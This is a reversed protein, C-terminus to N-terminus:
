DVIIEIEGRATRYKSSYPVFVFKFTGSEEVRKNSGSWKVEGYVRRGDENYAKVQNELKGLYSALRKPNSSYSVHIEGITLDLTEYGKDEDVVIRITSTVSDYDDNDPIFRYRFRGGDDIETSDRDVWEVEGYLRRGSRNYAEVSDELDGLLDALTDDYDAYIKITKLTIGDVTRSTTGDRDTSDSSGSSGSGRYNGSNLITSEDVISGDNIYLQGGSSEEFYLDSIRSGRATVINAAADVTGSDVRGWVSVKVPADVKLKTVRASSGIVVPRDLSNDLRLTGITGYFNVIEQSGLTVAVYNGQSNTFCILLEGDEGTMVAVDNVLTRFSNTVAGGRLISIGGQSVSVSYTSVADAWATVAGGLVLAAALVLGLLRKAGSRFKKKMM